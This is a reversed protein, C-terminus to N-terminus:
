KTTNSNKNFINQNVKKKFEEVNEVPNLCKYGECLYIYTQYSFGKGQLLPWSNDEKNSSQIIKAPIYEKLIEKLVKFHEEGMIVIEKFGKILVQLNLCWYGFSVPYKQAVDNIKKIM